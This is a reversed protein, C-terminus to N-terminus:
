RSLSPATGAACLRCLLAWGSPSVPETTQEPEGRPPVTALQRRLREGCRDCRLVLSCAESNYRVQLM